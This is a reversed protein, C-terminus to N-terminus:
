GKSSVTKKVARREKRKKFYTKLNKPNVVLTLKIYFGSLENASKPAVFRWGGGCKAALLSNIQFRGHLGTELPLIFEKDKSIQNREIDVTRYFHYGMGGNLYTTIKFRGMTIFDFEQGVSAFLVRSRQSIIETKSFDGIEFPTGSISFKFRLNEGYGIGSYLGYIVGWQHNIRTIRNDIGIIFEKSDHLSAFPDTLHQAPLTHYSFLVVFPLWLLIAERFVRLTLM